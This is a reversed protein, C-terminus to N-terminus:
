RRPSSRRSRRCPATSSRFYRRGSSLGDSAAAGFIWIGRETYYSYPSGKLLVSLLTEFDTGDVWVGATLNVPSQFYYNLELEDCLDLIVDQVNGRAIRATIRGLSDVCLENPTFQRRACIPPAQPRRAARRPRAGRAVADM